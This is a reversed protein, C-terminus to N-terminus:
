KDKEGRGVFPIWSLWKGTKIVDVLWPLFFRACFAVFAGLGAQLGDTMEMQLWHKIASNVLATMSAGMFWSALFVGAMRSRPEVRDGFSFSCYAGIACAVLVNLPVGVYAVSVDRTIFWLGAGILLGDKM